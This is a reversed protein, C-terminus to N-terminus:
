ESAVGVKTLRTRGNCQAAAATYCPTTAQITTAWATPNSCTSCTAWAATATPNRSCSSSCTAWTAWAATAAAAAAVGAGEGLHPARRESLRRLAKARHAGIAGTSAFVIQCIHQPVARSDCNERGAAHWQQRQHAPWRAMQLLEALESLGARRWACENRGHLEAPQQQHVHGALQM